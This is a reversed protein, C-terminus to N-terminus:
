LSHVYNRVASMTHYVSDQFNFVKDINNVSIKARCVSILPMVPFSM